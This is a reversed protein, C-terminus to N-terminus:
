ARSSRIALDTFLDMVDRSFDVVPHPIECAAEGIFARGVTEVIHKTTAPRDDPMTAVQGCKRGIGNCVKFPASVSATMPMNRM